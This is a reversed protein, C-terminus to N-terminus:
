ADHSSFLTGKFGYWDLNVPNLIRVTLIQCHSFDLEDFVVSFALCLETNHHATSGALSFNVESKHLRGWGWGWTREVSNLARTAWMQVGLM